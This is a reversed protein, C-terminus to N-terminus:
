STRVLVTCSKSVATYYGVLRTLDVNSSGGTPIGMNAGSMNITCNATPANVQYWDALAKLLKNINATPFVVNQNSINLVSMAKRFVTTNSDSISATQLQFAMGTTENFGINPISGTLQTSNCQFTSLSSPLIWNTINGILGTQYLYIYGLGSPLIWNTVNGSLGTQYLHLQFLGSPLIWNTVNGSLGTQSIDFSATILSPLIWNGIDGYTRTQWHSIFGVIHKTDGSLWVNYQGTTAFNKTINSNSGVYAQSTGDSYNVTVTKGVSVNLTNIVFATLVSQDTKWCLPTSLATSSVYDSFKSGKKVRVRYVVSANQKCTLDQYSTSGAITTGLLTEAGGNTAGYVEYQADAGANNTWNLHGLITDVTFSSTLLTPPKLNVMGGGMGIGIANINLLAM